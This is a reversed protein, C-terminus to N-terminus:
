TGNGIEPVYRRVPSTSPVDELSVEQGRSGQLRAGGGRRRLVISEATRGLRHPRIAAGAGGFDNGGSRTELAISKAAMICGSWLTLAVALRELESGQM